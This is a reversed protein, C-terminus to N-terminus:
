GKCGSHTSHFNHKYYIKGEKIMDEARYFGSIFDIGRQFDLQEGGYIKTNFGAAFQPAPDKFVYQATLIKNMKIGEANKFTAEM